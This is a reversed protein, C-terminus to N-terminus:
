LTESESFSPIKNNKDLIKYQRRIAGFGIIEWNFGHCWSIDESNITYNRAFFFADKKSKFNRSQKWNGWKGTEHNLTRIFLFYPAEEQQRNLISRIRKIYDEM